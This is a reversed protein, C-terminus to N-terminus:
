GGHRGAFRAVHTVAFLAAATVVMTPGTPSDAAFSIGLGGLAAVVGIAVALLAMAEPTRTPARAAAAPVILMAAILLAGVVKIAVAVTLALAVTLVLQERRPDIGSAVALDGDLSATLLASWRWALLALVAAAGGWIVALDTKSVALIDGILYSMLDVRVDAMFSVAVLGAALATHSMVGLLTDTAQGRGSLAAVLLAMMLAVAVVGVYISISFGLAVAVGLIAAHATADGFYIMRRWLIFCGLPGATLALAVAALGARVMFDDLM